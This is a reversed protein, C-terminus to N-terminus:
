PSFSSFHLAIYVVFSYQQFNLSEPLANQMGGLIGHKEFQFHQVFFIWKFFGEELIITM